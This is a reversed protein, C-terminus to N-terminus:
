LDAKIAPSATQYMSFGKEENWFGTIYIKFLALQYDFLKLLKCQEPNLTQGGKCIVFDKLLEIKARNLSVPLGLRKLLEFNSFPQSEIIGADLTVDQTAICGSRAYTKREFSQFYKKVDAESRNTLMLAVNGKLHTCLKHVGRREESEPKSGLAVRMLSNKCLFFKSDPWACRVKQFIATRMNEYKVIFINEYENLCERVAEIVQVKGDRGKKETESLHYIKARKSKPM